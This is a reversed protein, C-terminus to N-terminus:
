TIEKEARGRKRCVLVLDIALYRMAGFAVLRQLRRHLSPGALRHLRETLVGFGSVETVEFGHRHLLRRAGALSLQRPTSGLPPRRRFRRALLSLGRLSTANGHINLILLGDDALAEHLVALARARLADEANLFFRFATILDYPGELLSPDETADGEVIRSWQLKARALELMSSSVDIGTSEAVRGGELVVIVRGSGCAFDLYRPRKAGFQRELVQLLYVRELCWLWYDYSRPGYVADDYSRAQQRTILDTM